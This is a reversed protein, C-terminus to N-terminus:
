KHVFDISLLNLGCFLTVFNLSKCDMILPPSFFLVFCFFVRM